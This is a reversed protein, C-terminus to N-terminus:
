VPLKPLWDADPRWSAAWAPFDQAPMPRAIGYGQALECGLQLLLTGHAITEVGEAIVECEFAHALGIIGRLIALDDPDSLMDRVFSQDIKLQKVRLRKLYTLSSYGTGFDDLSFRVGIQKCDDIVQSVYAMDHLASTELIEIVLRAPNVQPHRGLLERLRAVFNVQQLQHAGVNVSIMLMLGQSQWVQLQTLASEIVWEGVEIALPQDEFIPLFKAPALLGQEPHQWRILAEAGVVQGSRMAVKPQYYLVFEHNTLAQQCRQLSEHWGRLSAAQEADFVQYRSRGAQKALYMAQDAQRVLQDGEVDSAQPYFTVGLSATVQLSQGKRQLPLAAAALLRQLLPTCHDLGNLNILIAIFEDGGIRALTDGERLVQQMQQAVAILLQDGVDHGHQDNISKFGDLDIYVLTLGIGSRQVQAMAQQLRDATLLRNPLGTLSDYHAMRDLQQEHAKLATIDSFLAVYSQAVGQADRVVSISLLEVYLAGNKHRNWIEGRWYGNHNLENWLVAYFVSDQRGSSLFHPNKGLVEARSYGSIRTFADNVDTINANADTIFIGEHAQSFVSAALSLKENAQHRETIDSLMLRLTPAGLDATAQLHVWIPSGDHRLLRLECSLPLGSDLLQLSERYYVDKDEHVIFSYLSRGVLVSRAQGLLTAATLNAEEILGSASITLYGVPALDYLDFYRARAADLAIEAQRLEENQMELEIQHVQLEHLLQQTHLPTPASEPDTLNKLQVFYREEARLRLAIKEEVLPQTSDM